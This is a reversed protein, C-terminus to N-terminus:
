FDPTYVSSASDRSQTFGSFGLRSAYEVVSNYEFSTVRRHLNKYPCDLAFEPTYQSMVSLLIKDPPVAKALKDLALMSDKRHSPLVLHRVLTGRLLLGDSDFKPEGTQRLMESIADVAVEVYDPASSYLSACESSGYKFDPMYIDVLGRLMKLTEVSEYGSSNYVVPISLEARVRLLAEAIKDAFHTPTVLNINHAGREKLSFFIDCLEDVSVERGIDKEKARSIARNQCFVCRLSCGSFFVTGSGRTASIPPEEFMHLDARAVRMQAGQGCFGYEGAERDAGCLRPCLYCKTM